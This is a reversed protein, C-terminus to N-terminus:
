SSKAFPNHALEEKVTTSPGHGPFLVTPEPLKLVTDHVSQLHTAYLSFPNSRGVSGAFLTDGVFCIPAGLGGVHYCIGGPTHGPTRLCRVTLSGVQISQGEAPNNLREHPPRWSLLKEDERGLLVPAPSHALIDELGDAHDSHGHTLCIGKLRLKRRKLVALMAKPHYATDIFAAEGATEDYLVYGKVQYGGIDGLVIEVGTKGGTLLAPPAAPVWTGSAIDALPKPRLHLMSGIADVEAATPARGARELNEVERATIGMGGALDEVSLGLGMRAKKVIDTFDDELTM